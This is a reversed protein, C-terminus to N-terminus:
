SILHLHGTLTIQQCQVIASVFYLISVQVLM